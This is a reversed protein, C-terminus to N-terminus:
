EKAPAEEAPAEETKEAPTPPAAPPAQMGMMAQVVDKAAMIVDMPIFVDSQQATKSTMTATMGIPANVEPVKFPLPEDVITGIDSALKLGTDLAVYGEAARKKALAEATRKIGPNDALPAKKEKVLGVATEFRAAGGGFTAVVHHPDVAGMRVLAGEKGIIKMVTELDEEEIEEIQDLKITLHDVDIGGITEAKPVYEFYTLWQNIDEDTFLGGKVNEILASFSDLCERSDGELGTVKAFGVMGDPGAPLASVSFALSRLGGIMKVVTEKVSKLKEADVKGGATIQPNDFMKGLSDAMYESSADTYLGGIALVFPEAPLGTLMSDSTERIGGMSKAMDSGPKAEANLGLRIGAESVQLGIQVTKFDKFSEVQPNNMAEAMAFLPAAVDSALAAGTNLWITLDDEQARELQHKTFQKEGAGKSELVAKAMEASPALIVHKGKQGIYMPVGQLVTTSLGGEVEQIEMLSTFEAYDTIPVLLIMKDAFNGLSELPMLVVLLDGADDVGSTLGLMTKAMMLPSRPPAGFKTGISMVKKEVGALNRVCAVAWADEPVAAFIDAKSSSKPTDQGMALPSILLSVALLTLVLHVRKM